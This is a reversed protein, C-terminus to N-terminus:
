TVHGNSVPCVHKGEIPAGCLPCRPRGAAVVEAIKFTLAQVQRQSASWSLASEAAHPDPADHATFVFRDIKEDYGVALRGVNFEVTPRTPFRGALTLIARDRRGRQRAIGELSQDLILGLAQLQEKEIWVSATMSGNEALVRFTRKGPAGIAEVDIEDVEGFDRQSLEAM